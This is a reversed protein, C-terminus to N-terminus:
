RPPSAVLLPTTSMHPFTFLFTKHTHREKAGDTRAGDRIHRPPRFAPSSHLYQCQFWHVSAPFQNFFTILNQKNTECRRINPPQSVKQNTSVTLHGFCVAGLRTM